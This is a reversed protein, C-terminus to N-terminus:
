NTLDLISIQVRGSKKEISFNLIRVRGSKKNEILFYFIRVHGSKWKGMSFNIDPSSSTVFKALRSQYEDISFYLDPRTRIKM